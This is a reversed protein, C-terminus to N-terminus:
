FAVVTAALALRHDRSWPPGLMDRPGYLVDHAMDGLRESAEQEVTKADYTHIEWGRLRAQQALLQCYMFSDARSEFPAHRQVAIEHPFDLPWGRISISKIPGDVTAALDNLELSAARAVSARVEGVLAELAPDDLHGSSRHLAHLGGEHHIPAPPVGPEILSIQRRDVVRHDPTATVAVAWGYHHAIGLRM